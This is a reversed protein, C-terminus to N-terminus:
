SGLKFAELFLGYTLGIKTANLTESFLSRAQNSPQRASLRYVFWSVFETLGVLLAAALVDLEAEQGASTAIATALFNGFLLGLIILSIRRWPNQLWGTFRSILDDTLRNLRTNQM